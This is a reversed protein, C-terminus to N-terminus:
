RQSTSPPASESASRGEGEMGFYSSLETARARWTEAPLLTGRVVPEGVVAAVTAEIFDRHSAAVVVRGEFRGTGQIRTTVVPRGAALYEYIKTADGHNEGEGVRHPVICVASAALFRPLVTYHLDGLYHIRPHQLAPRMWASNLTQGALVVTGKPLADALGILLEVDIRSGLKGAYGVIPGPVDLVLPEVAGFLSPDVANPIVRTERGFQKDMWAQMALSNVAIREVREALTCYARVLESRVDPAVEPHIAFNDFLDAVVRGKWWDLMGAAFPHCLWLTQSRSSLRSLVRHIHQQYQRSGHARLLWRHFRGREFGSEFVLLDAVPAGLRGQTVAWRLGRAQPTGPARWRGRLKVLEALCTPRDAILLMEAGVVKVLERAIHGDRTRLGERSWKRADHFPVYTIRDGSQM